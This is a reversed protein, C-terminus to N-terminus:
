KNSKVAIIKAIVVTNDETSHNLAVQKARQLTSYHGIVNTPFIDRGALVIYDATYRGQYPKTIRM